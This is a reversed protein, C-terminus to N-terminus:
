PLLSCSGLTPLLIQQNLENLEQLHTSFEQNWRELLAFGFGDEGRCWTGGKRRRLAGLGGAM